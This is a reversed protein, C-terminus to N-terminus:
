QAAQAATMWALDAPMGKAFRYRLYLRKWRRRQPRTFGEPPENWDPLDDVEVPVLRGDPLRDIVLVRHM